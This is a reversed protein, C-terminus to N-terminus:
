HPQFCRREWLFTGTNTNGIVQAAARHLVQARPNRRERAAKDYAMHSGTSPNTPMPLRKLAFCLIILAMSSSM